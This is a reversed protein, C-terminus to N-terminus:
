IFSLELLTGQHWEVNMALNEHQINKRDFTVVVDMWSNVLPSHPVLMM